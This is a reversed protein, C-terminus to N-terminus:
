FKYTSVSTPHIVKRVIFLAVFIFMLFVLLTMTLSGFIDNTYWAAFFGAVLAIGSLLFYYGRDNFSIKGAGLLENNVDKVIGTYVARKDDDTRRSLPVLDHPVFEEKLQVLTDDLEWPFTSVLVPINKKHQEISKSMIEACLPENEYANSLLHIAVDSDNLNQDLAINRDDGPMIKDKHWLSVKDKLVAFFLCLDDAAKIDEEQSSSNFFIKKM